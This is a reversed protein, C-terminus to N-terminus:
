KAECNNEILRLVKSVIDGHIDRTFRREWDRAIKEALRRTPIHDTVVHAVCKRYWLLVTWQKNPERVVTVTVIPYDLM